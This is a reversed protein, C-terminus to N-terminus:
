TTNSMTKQTIMFRMSFQTENVSSLLERLLEGHTQKVDIHVHLMHACNVYMLWLCQVTIVTFSRNFAQPESTWTRIFARTELLRGSLRFTLRIGM